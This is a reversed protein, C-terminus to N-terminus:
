LMYNGVFFDIYEPIRTGLYYPMNMLLYSAGGPTRANDIKFKGGYMRVAYPHNAQEVFQHM